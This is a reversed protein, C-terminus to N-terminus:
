KQRQRLDSCPRKKNKRIKLRLFFAHSSCHVTYIRSSPAYNRFRTFQLITDSQKSTGHGETYLGWLPKVQWAGDRMTLVWYYRRILLTVNIPLIPLRQVSEQFSPFIDRSTWHMKMAHENKYLSLPTHSMYKFSLSDIFEEGKIFSM